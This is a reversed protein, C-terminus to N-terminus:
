SVHALALGAGIGILQGAQKHAPIKRLELFEQVSVGTDIGQDDGVAHRFPLAASILPDEKGGTGLKDTPPLYVRLIQNPVRIYNQPM